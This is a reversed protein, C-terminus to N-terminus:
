DGEADKKAVVWKQTPRDFDLRGDKRLYRLAGVVFDHAFGLHNAIGRTTHAEGAEVCSFVQQTKEDRKAARSASLAYNRAAIEKSRLALPHMGMGRAMRMNCIAADMEMTMRPKAPESSPLDKAIIKPTKVTRIDYQSM